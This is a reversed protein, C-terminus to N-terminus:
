SGPRLSKLYVETRGVLRFGEGEYLRVAPTNREDVGLSVRIAGAARAERVAARVLSRGVGTRRFEPAVGLYGLEWGPAPDRNLVVLGALRGDREGVFRVPCEDSGPRPSSPVEDEPRVEDLEPFDLTAEYTARLLSSYAAPKIRDAPILRVPPDPGEPATATEIEYHCMRSVRRFGTRVLPEARGPEDEPLNSQALVVRNGALWDLALRILSEDAPTAPRPPPFVQGLGGGQAVALTATHVRGTDDRASFFGAPDIEAIELLRVFRVASADPDPAGGMLVRAAPVWLERPTVGVDFGM